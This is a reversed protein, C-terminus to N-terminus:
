YQEGHRHERSCQGHEQGIAIEVGGEEIRLAAAIREQVLVQEPEETMGFDVDHDQRGKANDALHDGGEAALRYEAIEAHDKGHDRDARDAEHHPRVM